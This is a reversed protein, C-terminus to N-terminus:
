FWDIQLTKCCADANLCRVLLYVPLETSKWNRESKDMRPNDVHKKAQSNIPPYKYKCFSVQKAYDRLFCAPGYRPLVLNHFPLGSASSQQEHLYMKGILNKVFCAPEFLNCLLISSIMWHWLFFQLPWETTRISKCLDNVQMSSIAPSM